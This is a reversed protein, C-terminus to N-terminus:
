RVNDHNGYVRLIEDQGERQRKNYWRFGFFGVTMIFISGLVASLTATVIKMTLGNSDNTTTSPQSYTPLPNTSTQNSTTSPEFANVWTFNRIDLLYVKSNQIASDSPLTNNGVM